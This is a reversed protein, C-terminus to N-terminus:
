QVVAVTVKCLHHFSYYRVTYTPLHIAAVVSELIELVLVMGANEERIRSPLDGHSYHIYALDGARINKV